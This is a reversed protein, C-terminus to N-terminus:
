KWCALQIMQSEFSWVKWSILLFRIRRSHITQSSCFILCSAVVSQACMRISLTKLSRSHSLSELHNCRVFCSSHLIFKLFKSEIIRRTRTDNEVVFNEIELEIRNSSHNQIASLIASYSLVKEIIDFVYLNM